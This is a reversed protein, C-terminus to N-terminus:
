RQQGNTAKHSPCTQTNRGRGQSIPLERTNTTGHRKKIEKFATKLEDHVIRLAFSMVNENLVKLQEQTFWQDHFAAHGCCPCRMDNDSIKEEWDRLDVKFRFLCEENPCERDYFGKEDPEIQIPLEYSEDM